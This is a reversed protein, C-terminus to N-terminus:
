LTGVVWCCCYLGEEVLCVVGDAATVQRCQAALLWPEVAAAAVGRATRSGSRRPSIVPFSRLGTLLWAAPPRGQGWVGPHTSGLGPLVLVDTKGRKRPQKQQQAPKPISVGCRDVSGVRLLLLGASAGSLMKQVVQWVGMVWAVTSVPLTGQM